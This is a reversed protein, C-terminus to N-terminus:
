GRYGEYNSLECLELYIEMSRKPVELDPVPKQYRLDPFDTDVEANLFRGVKRLVRRSFMQNYHVFMWDGDGIHKSLVHEYMSSQIEFSSEANRENEIMLSKASSAPHRFTCIFRTRNLFPRWAPLSYCFRPDKYCFPEKSILNKIRVEAQIPLSIEADIPLPMVWWDACIGAAANLIINNTDNLYPGEFFGKPNAPRPPYNDNGMYYNNRLVGAMMSTGSRACGM